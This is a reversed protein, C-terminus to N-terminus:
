KRKVQKQKRTQKQQKRQKRTKRPSFLNNLRPDSEPLIDGLPPLPPPTGPRAKLYKQIYQTFVERILPKNVFTTKKAEADPESFNRQYMNEADPCITLYHAIHDKLIQVTDLTEPDIFIKEDQIIRLVQYFVCAKMHESM